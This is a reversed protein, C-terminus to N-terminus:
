PQKGAEVAIQDDHYSGSKGSRDPKEAIVM